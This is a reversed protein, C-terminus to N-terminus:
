PRHAKYSLLKNVKLRLFWTGAIFVKYLIIHSIMKFRLSDEDSSRGVDPFCVALLSSSYNKNSTNFINQIYELTRIHTYVDNRTLKANNEVSNAMLVTACSYLICYNHRVELHFHGM